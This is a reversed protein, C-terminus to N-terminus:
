DLILIEVRRNTTKGDKSDNGTKPSYEGHAAVRVSSPDLGMKTTLYDAVAMSREVSLRLNSGWKSKKIPDNDTHGEIWFTRDAYDGALADAVTTLSDQGKQNLSAAGSKFTLASPLNLVLFGGRREVGVGTGSLRARLAEVEADAAEMTATMTAVRADLESARQQEFKLQEQLSANEAKALDSNAKLQQNHSQYAAIQRDSDEQIQKQFGPQCAPLLLAASAVFFTFKNMPHALPFWAIL